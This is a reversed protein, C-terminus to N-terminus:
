DDAGAHYQKLGSAIEELRQDVMAFASGPTYSGGSRRRGAAVETLIELGEEVTNIAYVHYEGRKVAQVVDQRLMLDNVNKRPIIVGERGTFRGARVCDYFGEVKENVGGIPQIDGKQNMSGTVAIDQRIPLAALSSLIAYIETASASDGDIGSYSQEFCVSATLNLPRNQAFRSRLFGALIQVGKDHSRGSFGSEREINIIGGHGYSTEATIRSPKGFLYDGMDYIALGNVQGVRRGSTTILITGESIMEAIKTEVLNLRRINEKVALGVDVGTIFRRRAREAWYDAERLLDAIVWSQLTIKSKRGAKRVGYELVRAVGQATLPRLNNEECTRSILAPYQKRLVRSTLPLESDFDVRVKFIDRFDPDTDYLHDYLSFDGLMVVKVRAPIPEPKMGGPRQAGAPDSDEIQLTGYKLCTKLTSWSGPVAYFDAANVILVGGEAALFSGGRIETFHPVPAQDGLPRRGIWGFLNAFQPVKEVVVPAARGGQSCLANVEYDEILAHHMHQLLHKKWQRLWGQVHPDTFGKLLRPFVEALIRRATAVWRREEATALTKNLRRLVRGVEVQLKRGEGRPLQLLKPRQPEQFNQVYCHDFIEPAPLRFSRIYREILAVSETGHLGCLFLNYGTSPVSLGM